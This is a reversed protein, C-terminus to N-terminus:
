LMARICADRAESRFEACSNNYATLTSNISERSVHGHGNEFCIRLNGMAIYHGASAAITWHKVAREMNGSKSEMSGLNCRAVEHGIMAAAEYHFKAKKMDGGEHYINGLNYHAKSFGLDAAKTLLELARAHDQQVGRLGLYYSDALMKMSAADNAAVRKMIQEVREEDTKGGKSNCFPCNDDNGSECFSHVCGRCVGKGCCPYYQEMHKNELEENAIAFDYIPLSLITAPPLSACSIIDTPM